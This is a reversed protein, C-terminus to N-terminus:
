DRGMNFVTPPLKGMGGQFVPREKSEKLSLVFIRMSLCTRSVIINSEKYQHLEHELM